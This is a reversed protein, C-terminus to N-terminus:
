LLSYPININQRGHSRTSSSYAQWTAPDLSQVSLFNQVKSTGAAHGLKSDNERTVDDASTVLSTPEEVIDSLGSVSSLSRSHPSDFSASLLDLEMTAMAVFLPENCAPQEMVVSWTVDCRYFM